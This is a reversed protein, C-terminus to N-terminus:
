RPRVERGALAELGYLRAREIRERELPDAEAALRENMLRVFRGRLTNEGAIEELDLAPRTRDEWHFHLARGALREEIEGTSLDLRPDVPGTLRVRVIAEPDIEGSGCRALLAEVIQERTAFGECDITITELPYRNCPVGQVSVEGGAIEVRLYGLKGAEDWGRGEPIGSYWVETRDIANRVPRQEHYHGLACYDVNKGAIESIDFPGHQSKGEPVSGVDSGHSVVINVADGPLPRLRTFHREPLFTRNFGFGTVRVGLDELVLSHFEEERFIHVNPPWREDCYPSGSLYPDHNGPAIFVRISGLLEFQRKLFEITDGTIRDHEFLDGAILVLDAEGARAEELVRRLTGRIAERKRDGLRSPFGSAAFSTDLHLDSTHVIRIKRM